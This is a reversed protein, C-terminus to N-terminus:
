RKTSNYHTVLLDSFYVGLIVIIWFITNADSPHYSIWILATIVALIRFSRWFMM